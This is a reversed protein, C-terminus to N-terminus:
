RPVPASTGLPVRPPVQPVLHATSVRLVGHALPQDMKMASHDRQVSRVSILHLRVRLRHTPELPVRPKLRHAPAIYDMPVSVQRQLVLPATSVRHVSMM